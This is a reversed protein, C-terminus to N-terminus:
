IRFLTPIHKGVGDGDAVFSRNRCAQQSTMPDDGIRVTLHLFDTALAHDSLLRVKLRPLAETIRAAGDQFGRHAGHLATILHDGVIAHLEICGDRGKEQPWGTKGVPDKVDEKRTPPNTDMGLEQGYYM